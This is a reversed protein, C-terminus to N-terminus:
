TLDRDEWGARSAARLASNSWEPYRDNRDFGVIALALAADVDDDSLENDDM